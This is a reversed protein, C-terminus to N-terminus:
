AHCSKQSLICWYGMALILKGQVPKLADDPRETDIKLEDGKITRADKAFGKTPTKDVDRATQSQTVAPSGFM